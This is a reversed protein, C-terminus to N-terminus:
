IMHARRCISFLITKLFSVADCNRTSMVVRRGTVERSQGRGREEAGLM